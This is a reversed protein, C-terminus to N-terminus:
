GEYLDLAIWELKDTPDRQRVYTSSPWNQVGHIRGESGLEGADAMDTFANGVDKMCAHMANSIETNSLATASGKVIIAQVAALLSASFTVGVARKKKKPSRTKSKANSHSPSTTM